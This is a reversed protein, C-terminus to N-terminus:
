LHINDNTCIARVGADSLGNICAKIVVRDRKLLANTQWVAQHSVVFIQCFHIDTVVNRGVEIRPDEGFVVMNRNSGAGHPNVLGLNLLQLRSDAGAGRLSQDTAFDDFYLSMGDGLM